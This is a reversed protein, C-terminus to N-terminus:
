AKSLGNISRRSFYKERGYVEPHFGSGLELLAGISGNVECIDTSPKVVGAIIKLLTSKGAGNEGILADLSNVRRCAELNVGAIRHLPPYKRKGIAPIGRYPLAPQHRLERDSLEERGREHRILPTNV